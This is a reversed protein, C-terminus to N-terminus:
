GGPMPPGLRCCHVCHTPREPPSSCTLRLCVTLQRVAARGAELVPTAAEQAVYGGIQAEHEAHQAVARLTEISQRSCAASDLHVGLVPPRAHRWRDRLSM